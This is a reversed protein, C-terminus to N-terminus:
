VHVEVAQRFNCATSHAGASQVGWQTCRESHVVRFEGNFLPMKTDLWTTSPELAAVTRSWIQM